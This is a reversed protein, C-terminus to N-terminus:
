FLREGQLKVQTDRAMFTVIMNLYNMTVDGLYMLWQAGLVIDARPYYAFWNIKNSIGEYLQSYQRWRSLGYCTKRRLHRSRITELHYVGVMANFSIEVLGNDLETAQTSHPLEEAVESHPPGKMLEELEEGGLLM